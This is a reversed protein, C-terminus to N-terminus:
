PVRGRYNANKLTLLQPVQLATAMDFACIRSGPLLTRIRQVHHPVTFSLVMGSDFIVWWVGHRGEAATHTLADAASNMGQALARRSCRHCPPLIQCGVFIRGSGRESVDSLPLAM